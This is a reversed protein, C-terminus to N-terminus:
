SAVTALRADYEDCAAQLSPPAPERLQHRDCMSVLADVHAQCDRPRALRPGAPASEDVTRGDLYEFWTEIQWTPVFVAVHETASRPPVSNARCVAELHQSREHVGLRDGDQMVILAQSGHSQNARHAALEVPYRERVFQEASGRGRPSKEVRLRRTSWGMKKLFRRLFAEHQSDECLIVLQV